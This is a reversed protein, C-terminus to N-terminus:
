FVIVYLCINLGDGTAVDVPPSIWRLDYAGDSDDINVIIKILWSVVWTLATALWVLALLSDIVWWTRRTPCDISPAPLTMKKKKDASM